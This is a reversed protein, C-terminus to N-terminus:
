RERKKEHLTVPWWGGNHRLEVPEGEEIDDFFNPPTAPAEPRCVSSSLWEVLRPAGPVEDV